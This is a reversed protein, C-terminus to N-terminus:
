LNWPQRDGKDERAATAYQNVFDVFSAIAPYSSLAQDFVCGHEFYAMGNEVIKNVRKITIKMPIFTTNSFYFRFDLEEELDFSGENMPTRFSCGSKSIDVMEVSKLGLKEIVTYCGLIRNFLIREYERRLDEQKAERAKTFQVVKGENSM